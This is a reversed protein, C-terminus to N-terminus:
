TNWAGVRGPDLQQSGVHFCVGEPRLGLRQAHRLLGAAADPACGFKDGFPTVSSPFEPAIRCEVAAGPAHEAIATMGQETDFAFRRLGAHM